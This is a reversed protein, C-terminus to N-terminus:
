ALMAGDLMTLRDHTEQISQIEAHVGPEGFSAIYACAAHQNARAHYTQEWKRYSAEAAADDWPYRSPPRRAGCRWFKATLRARFCKQAQCLRVYLPDAGFERLLGSTATSAPDFSASTALLRYGGATRYVRVGLGAHSRTVREFRELLLNDGSPAPGAEATARQGTLNAWMRKVAEGLTAPERSRIADNVDYDVDVFMASSTNLVLSGYSNRSIVGILDDGDRLEEVVEERLPRDSYAYRRDLPGTAVAAATQQAVERARRQADELSQDSAGYARLKWSRRGAEVNAEGAAWYRYFKM